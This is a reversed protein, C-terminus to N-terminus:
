PRDRGCEPCRSLGGLPYACSPCLGRKRRLLREALPPVHALLFMFAGWFAADVVLGLPLVRYPFEYSRTPADIVFLSEDVIVPALGASWRSGELCAMPWGRRVRSAHGTAPLTKEPKGDAGYRWFTYEITTDAFRVLVRRLGDSRWSFEGDPRRLADEIQAPMRAGLWALDSGLDLPGIYPVPSDNALARISALALSM